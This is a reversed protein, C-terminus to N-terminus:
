PRVGVHAVARLLSGRLQQSHVHGGVAEREVGIERVVRQIVNARNAHEGLDSGFLNEVGSPRNERLQGLEGIRAVDSCFFEICRLPLKADIREVLAFLGRIPRM